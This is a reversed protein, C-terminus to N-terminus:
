LHCSSAGKKQLYKQHYEEAKYFPKAPMIQTVIPRKFRGSKEMQIKVKQATEEQEKSYYFIASRYQEGFDPGQSNLTTPNHVSFFFDVLKEYSIEKPNFEVLVVEAHGTDGRCVDHYSPKIATGGSYGVATSIVGPLKRFNEEVGWFCGAAFMAKEVTNNTSM